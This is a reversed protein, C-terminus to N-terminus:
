KLYLYTLGGCIAIIVAILVLSIIKTCFCFIIVGLVAACVLAAAWPVTTLKFAPKEDQKKTQLQQLLLRM